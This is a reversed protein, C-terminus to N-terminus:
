REQMMTMYDVTLTNAAAEKTTIMITPMMNQGLPWDNTNVTGTAGAPDDQKQKLTSCSVWQEGVPRSSDRFYSSRMQYASNTGATNGATGSPPVNSGRSSSLRNGVNRNPRYVLGVEIFEDDTITPAYSQGTGFADIAISSGQSNLSFILNNGSALASETAFGHLYDTGLLDNLGTDRVHLGVFVNAASWDSCKFRAFFYTKKNPDLVYTGKAQTEGGSWQLNVKDNNANDTVVALCGGAVGDVVGVSHSGSGAEVVTKEWQGAVYNDFDNHWVNFRCPDVAGLREFPSNKKFNGIKDFTTGSNSKTSSNAM